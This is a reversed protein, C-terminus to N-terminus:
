GNTLYTHFRENNEMIDDTGLNIVKQYAESRASEPLTPNLKQLAAKFQVELVISAFSERQPNHSYPAINPGYFYQYGQGVLQDILSQEIINENLM